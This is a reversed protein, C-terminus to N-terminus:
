SEPLFDLSAKSQALSQLLTLVFEQAPADLSDFLTILKQHNEDYGNEGITPVPTEQQGTLVSVPVNLYLAIAEVREQPAKKVAKYLGSISGNGYNLAKEIKTISTGREVCLKRINALLRVNYEHAEEKERTTM